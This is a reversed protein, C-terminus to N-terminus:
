GGEPGPPRAGRIAEVIADIVRNQFAPGSLRTLDDPNNANGLEVMVSPMTASALVALPAQRVAFPWEPIGQALAERLTEAFLRSAVGSSRYADYWPIFGAGPPPPSPGRAPSQMVFVTGGSETPDHSYGVHLSLMLDARSQNAIAARDEAALPGDVQRTLIVSTGLREEITARLRRALVLTLEKELVGQARTGSDLGGHGPDLVLVRIADLTVREIVDAPFAPAPAALVAELPAAAPVLEVVFTRNENGPVLRVSAVQPTTEIVIRSRGDSDDFAVSRVEDDRYDLEELQPVLPARDINLTVRGGDPDREVRVTSSRELRITVRTVGDARGAAMELPTTEINGAIIRRAFMTIPVGALPGLTAPIFEVPVLWRGVADGGADGGTYLIPLNAEIANGDLTVTPGERELTLIGGPGRVTLVGTATADTYPLGFQRILDILGLYRIGDIEASMPVWPGDELYVVLPPTAAQPRLAVAINGIAFSAAFAAALAGARAFRISGSGRRRVM